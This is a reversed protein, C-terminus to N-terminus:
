QTKEKVNLTAQLEEEKLNLREALKWLCDWLKQLDDRTNGTLREPFEYPM